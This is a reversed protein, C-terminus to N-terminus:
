DVKNLSTSTKDTENKEKLTNGTTSEKITNSGSNKSDTKNQKKSSTKEENKTTNELVVNNSSINNSVISNSNDSDSIVDESKVNTKKDEKNLKQTEVLNSNDNKVENKDEIVEPVVGPKWTKWPNNENPDTPDWGRCQENDSIKDATPKGLLGFNADKYFEVSTGNPVNDYIWKVDKVQMRICGLSASTGLKDFEWYELSWNNKATYPVSHFLINGTIKTVYHGWVDGQMYGWEWKGCTKYVTKPYKSNPPTYAGTSCVMAKYPVTYEGEQDKTYVTVVNQQTNIKIYYPSENKNKQEVINNEKQEEVDEENSSLEVFVPEGDVQNEVLQARAKEDVAINSSTEKNNIILIVLIVMLIIFTCSLAFIMKNNKIFNEISKKM